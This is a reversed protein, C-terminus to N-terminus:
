LIVPRDPLENRARRRRAPLARALLANIEALGAEVGEAFRGDRFAAEMKRCVAKWARAASVRTSAAIPSSRSMAIPSCCTSWCAATRRPTGSGCCASCKSRASARRSARSCGRLRCRRSSPSACRAATTSRATARDASRHARAGSRSVRPARRRSRDRPPPLLPAAQEPASMTTSGREGTARRAAAASAAAAARSAAARRSDAAARAAAAAGAARRASRRRTRMSRRWDRLLDDRHVRRDRRHNRRRALRRRVLRRRRRHRRRGDLRAAPRLDCRLIGGVVPVVIFLILLLTASTSRRSGTRKAGNRPPPLPKGERRRRRHDSRRRRQHGRAFKGERFSRRSTRPSSAGRRHRRDARGRARLRGRHADEPREERGPVARRQRQGQARDEVARRRPDFLGRDAGAADDPVMLVALQNSTTAEWDALKAELAPTRPRRSRTRSIPSARRSRRSRCCATPAPKGRRRRRPSRSSALRARAFLWAACARRTRALSARVPPLARASLQPATLLGEAPARASCRSPAAKADAKPAPAAPAARRARARRRPRRRPRSTSIWRRRRASRRKTRRRHLQAERGDQVGDGDPQDPVAARDHQIGAGVQHLPQARGHDPERHRRAARHSRPVACRVEVASLKRRRAAAAVARGAAPEAGPHIEPVRGPDNILEPTAKISGVSARANTVETLVREEQAAYGKVTNVLNPVLDARRQYQNLVESWAAKIGEDQRQLDNYGCGALALTAFVALLGAFKRIM